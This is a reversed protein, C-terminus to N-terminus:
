KVNTGAKNPTSTVAHNGMEWATKQEHPHAPTSTVGTCHTQVFTTKISSCRFRFKANREVTHLNWCSYLLVFVFVTFVNVFGTLTLIWRQTRNNRPVNLHDGVTSSFCISKFKNCHYFEQVYQFPCLWYNYTFHLKRRQEATSYTHSFCTKHCM